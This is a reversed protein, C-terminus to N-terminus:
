EYGCSGSCRSAAMPRARHAHEIAMQSWLMLRTAKARCASNPNGAMVQYSFLYKIITSALEKSSGEFVVVNVSPGRGQLVSDNSALNLRAM